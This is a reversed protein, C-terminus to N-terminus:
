HGFVYGLSFGFSNGNIPTGSGKHLSAITYRLGLQFHDKITADTQIVGGFAPDFAVTGNLISGSATFTPNIQYDLGGGLRFWQHRFFGLLEFPVRSLSMDQNQASVGTYKYGLTSQLDFGGRPHDVARWIIGGSVLFGTGGTISAETGDTYRVKVLEDGGFDGGISLLGRVPSAHIATASLFLLALLSRRLM